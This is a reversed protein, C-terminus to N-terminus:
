LQLLDKVKEFVTIAAIICPQHLIYILLTKRGAKGILNDHSLFPLSPEPWLSTKQSYFTKGAALGFLFVGFWPILPYYDSSVFANTSLGLFFLADHTVTIGSLLRGLYVVGVGAALLLAAPLRRLVPALLICVGLFHLIGFTIVLERDYLYTALTILVALGLIKLARGINGETLASSIGAVFIFLIGAAKGAYYNFGTSYSVNYGFIENLDFVIHFYIMLILAIGRLFDIEWIRTKKM